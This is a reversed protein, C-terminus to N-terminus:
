INYVIYNQIDSLIIKLDSVENILALLEDPANRISRIKALTKTVCEAAGVVAIISATISLPDAMIPLSSPNVSSIAHLLSELATYCIPFPNYFFCFCTLLLCRFFTPVLICNDNHM